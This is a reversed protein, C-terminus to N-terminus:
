RKRDDFVQTYVKVYEPRVVTGDRLYGPLVRGAIRNHFRADSTQVPEICKQLRPEFAEGPHHFPHVGHGKLAQELEVRDAERAQLACRLALAADVDLVCASDKLKATLETTERRCRDALGILVQFAPNLFERELFQERLSRCQDHMETLVRQEIGLREQVAAIQKLSGDISDLRVAFQGLCRAIARLALQGAADPSPERHERASCTTDGTRLTPAVGPQDPRHTNAQKNSEGSGIALAESM